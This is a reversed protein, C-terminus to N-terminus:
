KIKIGQKKLRTHLMEMWTHIAKGVDAKHAYRGVLTFIKNTMKGLEKYLKIDPSEWKDVEKIQKDTKFPPNDKYTRVRGLDIKVENIIEKLKSKTLKM